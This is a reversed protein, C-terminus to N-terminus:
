MFPAIEGTDIDKGFIGLKGPKGLKGLKGLKGVNIQPRTQTMRMIAICQSQWIEM